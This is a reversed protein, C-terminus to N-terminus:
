RSNGYLKQNMEFRIQEKSKEGTYRHVHSRLRSVVHIPLKNYQVYNDVYATLGSIEDILAMEDFTLGENVEKKEAPLNKFVNAGEKNLDVLLDQLQETHVEFHEMIMNHTLRNRKETYNWDYYKMNYNIEKVRNIHIGYWYGPIFFMLSLGAATNIHRGSYEDYFAIYVWARARTTYSGM